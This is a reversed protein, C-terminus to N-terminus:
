EPQLLKRDQDSLREIIIIEYGLARYDNIQAEGSASVDIFQAFDQEAIGSWGAVVACVHVTVGQSSTMTEFQQLLSSTPEDQQPKAFEALERGHSVIVIDLNAFAQRLADVQMQVFDAYGTMASASLSEIELVVGNPEIQNSVLSEVMPHLSMSSVSASINFSFVMLCAIVIRKLSSPQPM